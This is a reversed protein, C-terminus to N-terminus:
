RARRRRIAALTLMAAAGLPFMDAAGSGCKFAATVERNANMTVAIPNNADVAALNADGPYNPDFLTWERLSRGENPIATLTVTSGEAYTPYNPEVDVVGFTGNIVNLTLTYEATYIRVYDVDIYQQIAPVPLYGITFSPFTGTLVYNDIWVTFNLGINPIQGSDMTQWIPTSMDDIYAALLNSRWKLRYTHWQTLDTNLDQFAIPVNQKVVWLRTGQLMDESQPSISAFWITNMPKNLPDMSSNWFGWGRSGIGYNPDPNNPGGPSDFGNNNSNRLRIELDCYPPTRYTMNFNILEANHYTGGVGPGNLSLHAFGGNSPSYTVSGVGRIWSLNWNPEQAYGPFHDAVLVVAPAEADVLLLVSIVIVFRGTKGSV